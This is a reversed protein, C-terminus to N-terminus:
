FVSECVKTINITPILIDYRGLFEYSYYSLLLLYFLQFYLLSFKFFAVFPTVDRCKLYKTVTGLWFGPSHTTTCINALTISKAEWHAGVLIKINSKLVAGITHYKLVAGVTHYKLVAGVTHYKKNTRKHRCKTVDVNVPIINDSM